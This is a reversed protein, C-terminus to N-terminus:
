TIFILGIKYGVKRLEIWEEHDYHLSGGFEKLIQGFDIHKPLSDISIMQLDFKNYKATSIKYKDLFKEPKIIYV